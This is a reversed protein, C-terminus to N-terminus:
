RLWLVFPVDLKINRTFSVTNTLRYLRRCHQRITNVSFYDADRICHGTGGCANVVRDANGYVHDHLFQISAASVDKGTDKRSATKANTSTATANVTISVDAVGGSGRQQVRETVRHKCCNGFGDASRYGERRSNGTRQTNGM